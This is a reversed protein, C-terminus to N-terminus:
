LLFALPSQDEEEMAMVGTLAIISATAFDIRGASRMKDIMIRDQPDTRVTCNGLCWNAVPNDNHVIRGDLVLREFHATAPSMMAPSQTVEVCTLGQEEELIQRTEEAGYPDYRLELCPFKELDLAISERITAPSITDGETLTVYGQKAWFAYPVRDVKEKQAALQKPIFFRPLLYVKGEKPIALTYCALDYRRAMDLGYIAESGYLNRELFPEKCSAWVNSAIWQETHGVWQGCYLTRWAAEERPNNQVKNFTDYYFQRPVTVDVSPNAKWWESPCQWAAGHNEGCTCSADEPIGYIVPLFTWDKVKNEKVQKAYTYREYGLHSRDFQPTSIVIHLGQRAATAGVLRDWIVRAHTSNWEALEDYLVLSASPGSVGEPTSPMVKLTSRIGEKSTYRIENVNERLWLRKGKGVISALKGYRCTNTAFKYVVQAQDVKSAIVYALAAPEEM